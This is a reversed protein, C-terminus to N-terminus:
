LRLMAIPRSSLARVTGIIGKQQMFVDLYDVKQVADAGYPQISCVRGNPQLISVMEALNEPPACCFVHNVKELGISHLDASLNAHGIVYDAGLQKCWERSEERSATAVVTCGRLKAVQIAISGVGGSGNVILVSSGKTAQMQEFLATRATLYTLPLSAAQEAALSSPAKGLIREDVITYEAFTGMGGTLDQPVSGMYWVRDGPKFGTVHEGVSEVVGAADWGLVTDKEPASNQDMVGARVKCDLPNIATADNRVLVHGQKPKPRAIEKEELVEDAPGYKSITYAKMMAVAGETHRTSQISSLSHFPLFSPLFFFFFLFANPM